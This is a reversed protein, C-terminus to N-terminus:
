EEINIRYAFHPISVGENEGLIVFCTKYPPVERPYIGVGDTMYILGEIKEGGRKLHTLYEFVPRFDTGGGGDLRYDTLMAAFEESSTIVDERHIKLDCQIIRLRFKKSETEMSKIIAFTEKLLRKVPEGDTSGSTDIAIAVDSYDRRDSYELHEVLPVNKYLQLGLCYYIYDFEDDSSYIKERRRLFAKLFSKYNKEEGVSVSIIRKLCPNLKGIQPILNRAVAGWESKLGEIDDDTLGGFAVNIGDASDEGGDCAQRHAWLGHSCVKFSAHLKEIQETELGKCYELCLEDNISGFRDIISKYLSKRIDKDRREGSFCDLDDLVYGVAVDTAFDYRVVDEVRKFPHLFLTHMLTHLIVTYVDKVGKEAVGKVIEDGSLYVTKGNTQAKCNAEAREFKMLGLPYSLYVLESSLEKLSHDLIENFLQEIKDM